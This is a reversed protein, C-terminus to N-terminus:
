GELPRVTVIRAGAKDFYDEWFKLNRKTQLQPTNMLYHIEVKVGRLELQAKQGYTSSAFSPYDVPGKYMTFQPTNHLMDSMVILRQEGKVDHKRFGNIAVLQMMEFIPSSKAPQLAMLAESQNLLPSLFGDQYQRKLQGINATFESKDQGTGPNCLEVLPKANDKFNEGLVFVSLLYGVPIRKEVLEKLTVTFAEKQTFTLPDTQDVLLVYHGTPGKAPCLTVKDLSEPRTMMFYTVGAVVGVVFLIALTGLAIAKTQRQRARRGIQTM